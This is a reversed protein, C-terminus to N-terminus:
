RSAGDGGGISQRLRGAHCDQDNSSPRLKSGREGGRRPRDTEHRGHAPQVGPMSREDRAGPGLVRRGDDRDEDIRLLEAVRGVEHAVRAVLRAVDLDARVFTCVEHECRRDLLDVRGAEVRRHSEPGDRQGQFARRPRAM